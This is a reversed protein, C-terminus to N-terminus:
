QSGLVPFVPWAAVAAAGQQGAVMGRAVGGRDYVGVAPVGAALGSSYFSVGAPGAGVAPPGGDGPQAGCRRRVAGAIDGGLVRVPAGVCGAPRGGGSGAGSDRWFSLLCGDGGAAGLVSCGWLQPEFVRFGGVGGGFFLVEGGPVARAAAGEVAAEAHPGGDGGAVAAVPRGRVGGGGAATGLTARKLRTQAAAAVAGRAPSVRGAGVGGRNGAAARDAPVRHGRRRRRESVEGSRRGGIKIWGEAAGGPARLVCEARGGVAPRAAGGLCACVRTPAAEM